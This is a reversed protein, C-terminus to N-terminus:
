LVWVKLRISWKCIVYYYIVGGETKLNWKPAHREYRLCINRKVNPLMNSIKNGSIKQMTSERQTTSLIKISQSKARGTLENMM